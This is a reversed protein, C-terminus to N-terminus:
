SKVEATVPNIKGKKLRKVTGSPDKKYMAILKKTAHADADGNRTLLMEGNKVAQTRENEFWQKVQKLELGTCHAFLISEGPSPYPDDSISEQLMALQEPTKKTARPRGAEAAMRNAFYKGVATSHFRPGVHWCRMTTGMTISKEARKANPNGKYGHSKYHAFDAEVIALQEPTFPYPMKAVLADKKQVETEYTKNNKNFFNSTADLIM